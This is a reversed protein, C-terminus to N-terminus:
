FASPRADITSKRSISRPIRSSHPSNGSSPTGTRAAAGFDTVRRTTAARLSPSGAAAGSAPDTRGFVYPSASSTGREAADANFDFVSRSHRLGQGGTPTAFTRKVPEPLFSISDSNTSALQDPHSTSRSVGLPSPLTEPHSDRHTFPSGLGSSVDFRQSARPSLLQSRSSSMGMGLSPSPTDIDRLDSEHLTPTSNLAAQGEAILANMKAEFRSLMEDDDDDDDDDEDGNGDENDEDDQTAVNNANVSVGGSSSPTMQASIPDRSSSPHVASSTTGPFADSLTKRPTGQRNAKSGQFTPRRRNRQSSVFVKRMRNSSSQPTSPQHPKSKSPTSHDEYYPPPPEEMGGPPMKVEKSGAHSHGSRAHPSIVHGMDAEPGADPHHSQHEGEASQSWSSWLSYATLAAAGTYLAANLATDVIAGALGRRRKRPPDDSPVSADHIAQSTERLASEASQGGRSLIANSFPHFSSDDADGATRFSTPSASMPTHQQRFSAFSVSSSSSPMSSLSAMSAASASTPFGMGSQFSFDAQPVEHQSHSPGSSSPGAQEWPLSGLGGRGITASWERKKGSPTSSPPPMRSTSADPLESSTSAALTDEFSSPPPRNRPHLPGRLRRRSPMGYGTNM